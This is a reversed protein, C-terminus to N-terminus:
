TQNQRGLVQAMESISLHQIDRLLLVARYKRALSDMARLLADRLERQELAESPIERWDAFDKPIYDGEDNQQREEISEYLRREKRLNM